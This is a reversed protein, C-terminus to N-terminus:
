GKGRSLVNVVQAGVVIPEDQLGIADITVQGKDWLVLGAELSELHVHGDPLELGLASAEPGHYAAVWLDADPLAVLWVANKGCHLRANGLEIYGSRTELAVPSLLMPFDLDAGDAWRRLIQWRMLDVEMGVSHDESEYGVSWQRSIEGDFTRAEELKETIQGTAFAEFVQRGGPTVAEQWSRLMSDM